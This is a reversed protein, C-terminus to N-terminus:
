ARRRMNIGARIVEDVLLLQSAMVPASNLIQRKVIYADFVGALDCDLLEGTSLDVGATTGKKVSKRVCLVSEQADLGANQALTMVVGLLGNAFAEVGIRAKGVATAAKELLYEACAVEFAGAGKVVAEDDMANKVARLGDRVADKIQAIVYDSPGKILITCSRPHRVDEVFTYKEEGLVHEYVSGAYGLCEPALEEVSSVEYGGCALQLREMNRKKARRLAMIGEKALADLSLPDIGKMNILVFGEGEQCVHRKLAVIAAVRDDVLKREAAVLKERQDASSYFFGSNVQAIRPTWRGSGTLARLFIPVRDVSDPTGPMAAMTVESKDYELSLNCTLIKANDVRSPMDPHRSGHDLVLGRVLRTDTDRKHRMHM